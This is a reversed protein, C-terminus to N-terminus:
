ATRPHSQTTCIHTHAHRHTHAHLHSQSVTEKDELSEAVEDDQDVYTRSEDALHVSEVEIVDDPDQPSLSLSLFLSLPRIMSHSYETTPMDLRGSALTPTFSRSYELGMWHM